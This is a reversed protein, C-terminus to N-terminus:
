SSVEVKLRISTGKNDSDIELKANIMSAREYMGTIGFHKDQAISAVQFGCGDDRILLTLINGSYTMELSLNKANAHEVTNALSEQIIRYIALEIDADFHLERQPTQLDLSFGGRQAANEALNRIALVLGMDELPSSRLDKLARRTEANGENLTDIVETLMTKARVDDNEWILQVANLKVTVASLTHALTDHLERALRNREQSVILQERTTAYAALKRNMDTLSERQERQTQMIRTVIYGVILFAVNRVMIGLFEIPIDFRAYQSSIAILAIDLITTTLIYFLVTRFRYQWSLLVLPIFFLATTALTLLLPITANEIGPLTFRELFEPIERNLSLNIQALRLQVLRQELLLHLTVAGLAIPLFAEKLYSQLSDISLYLLILATILLNGITYAPLEIKGGNLLLSVLTLGLRLTLFLRFTRLLNQELPYAM